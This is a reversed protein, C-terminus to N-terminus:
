ARDARNFIRRIHRFQAATCSVSWVMRENTENDWVTLSATPRASESGIWTDSGSLQDAGALKQETFESGTLHRPENIWHIAIPRCIRKKGTPLVLYVEGSKDGDEVYIWHAAEPYDTCVGVKVRDRFLERWFGM